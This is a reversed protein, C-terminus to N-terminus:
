EAQRSFRSESFDIMLLVFENKYTKPRGSM